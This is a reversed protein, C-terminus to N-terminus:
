YCTNLLVIFALIEITFTALHETKYINELPLMRQWEKFFERKECGLMSVLNVPVYSWVKCCLLHPFSIQVVCLLCDDAKPFTLCGDLSQVSFYLNEIKLNCSIYNLIISSSEDALFDFM